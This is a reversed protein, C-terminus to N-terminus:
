KERTGGRLRRKAARVLFVLILGAVAAVAILPWPAKGDTLGSIVADAGVVYLVTGPLMCLWSWILYTRFPVGTLGFAYNLLNFPFIPVLRTIAVVIAGHERTMRDLKQFTEHGSLRKVVSERAIYRAILFALGAGATSGISVLIVGLVSGFLVAGLITVALGPLAAVVAVIYVLVFAVPGLPGLERIWEKLDDLKEGVGLFRFLIMAAIVTVILLAPRWLGPKTTLDSPNGEM